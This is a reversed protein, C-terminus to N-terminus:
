ISQTGRRGAATPRLGPPDQIQLQKLKYIRFISKCAGMWGLQQKKWRKAKGSKGSSSSFSQEAIFGPGAPMGTCEDGGHRQQQQQQPRRRRRSAMPMAASSLRAEELDPVLESPASNSSSSSSNSIEDEPSIGTAAVEIWVEVKRISDAYIVLLTTLCLPMTVAWFVFFMEGGPSFEDNMSLIGSVVTIPLLVGGLYTVRDLSRQNEDLQSTNHHRTDEVDANDGTSRGVQPPLEINTIPTILRSLIHTQRELRALLWEWDSTLPQPTAQKKVPRSTELNRELSQQVQWYLAVSEDVSSPPELALAEFFESWQRLVIQKLVDAVNSSSASRPVTLHDTLLAELSPIDDGGVLEVGRHTKSSLASKAIKTSHRAKYIGSSRAMWLPRDLLLVGLKSSTWLSARCFMAATDGFKSLPHVIPDGMLDDVQSVYSMMLEPGCGVLEPYDFHGFTADADGHRHGLPRYTQRRVHSDIFHPDIDLLERLVELYDTPLGRIVFLRHKAQSKEEIGARLEEASNLRRQAFKSSDAWELVYAKEIANKESAGYEGTANLGGRSYIRIGPAPGPQRHM